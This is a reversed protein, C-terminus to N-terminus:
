PVLRAASLVDGGAPAGAPTSSAPGMRTRTRARKSASAGSSVRSGGMGVRAAVVKKHRRYVARAVSPDSQIEVVNSGSSPARGVFLSSNNHLYDTTHAAAADRLVEMTHSQAAVHLWARKEVRRKCTIPLLRGLLLELAACVAVVCAAAHPGDVM